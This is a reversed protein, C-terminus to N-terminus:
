DVDSLLFFAIKMLKKGSVSLQGAKKFLSLAKLKLFVTDCKNRIIRGKGM